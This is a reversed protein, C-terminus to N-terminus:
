PCAATTVCSDYEWIAPTASPPCCLDGAACDDGSNCVERYCSGAAPDGCSAIGTANDYCCAMATRCDEAGDCRYIDGNCMDGVPQCQPMVTPGVNRLCCEMDAACTTDGCGIGDASSADPSTDADPATPDADASTDADPPNPDADVIPAADAGPPPTSSNDGCAATGALLACATAWALGTM